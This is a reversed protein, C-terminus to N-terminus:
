SGLKASKKFLHCTESYCCRLSRSRNQVSMGEEREQRQFAKHQDEQSFTATFADDLPFFTSMSFTIGPFDLAQKIQAQRAVWMSKKAHLLSSPGEPVLFETIWCTPHTTVCLLLQFPYSFHGLYWILSLAGVMKFVLGSGGLLLCQNNSQQVFLFALICMLICM